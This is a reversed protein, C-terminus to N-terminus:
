AFVGELVTSIHDLEVASAPVDLIIAGLGVERWAALESVLDDYSGVLYPCFTKYTKFPHLWYTPDEVNDLNSLQQHWLSDSVKAAVAHALEGTRDPPFRRRAEAWADARDPRTVIGIRIGFAGGDPAAPTPEPYRMSFGGIARAAALSASSSGSVMFEPFLEEPLSPTLRVGHMSYWRGAHTVGRGGRLLDGVVSAYERVREYRDDHETDDGIALLDNRFGGAVLNLQVRRGHLVGISAVMKAASFPHMYAPQVAVLPELHETSDIVLQALLWPDLLRNDTYILMGLHGAAESWRAVAVVRELYDPERGPQWMPCTSYVRISV